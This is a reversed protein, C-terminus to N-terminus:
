ELSQCYGSVSNRGTVCVAEVVWWKWPWRRGSTTLRSRGSLSSRSDLNESAPPYDEGDRERERKRLM